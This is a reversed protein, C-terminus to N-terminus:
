SDELEEEALTRIKDSILESETSQYPLEHVDTRGIGPTKNTLNAIQPFLPVVEDSFLSDVLDSSFVQDFTDQFECYYEQLVLIGADIEKRTRPFKDIYSSM